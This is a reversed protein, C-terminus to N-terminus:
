IMGGRTRKSTAQQILSYHSSQVHESVDSAKIYKCFALSPFENFLDGLAGSTFIVVSGREM